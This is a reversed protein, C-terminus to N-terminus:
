HLIAGAGQWEIQIAGRLSMPKQESNTLRFRLTPYCLNFYSWGIGNPGIEVIQEQSWTNGRDGSAAISFRQKPEGQFFASRLNNFKAVTPVPGQPGLEKAYSERTQIEVIINEAGDDLSIVREDRFREENTIYHQTTENIIIEEKVGRGFGGPFFSMPEMNCLSKIETIAQYSDRYWRDNKYDYIWVKNTSPTTSYLWYEQRRQHVVGKIEQLRGDTISTINIGELISERVPNGIDKISAGDWMHVNDGGLFFGFYDSAAWSHPAIMGTGFIRGEVRFPELADGTSILELIEKEKTLYAKGNLIFGGTLPANSSEIVDLFGAGDNSLDWKLIDGNAHWRVRAPHDVEAERTRIAVVRNAFPILVMAKLTNGFDHDLINISDGDWRRIRTNISSWLVNNLTNVISFRESATQQTEVDVFAYLLWQDDGPVYKYLFSDGFMLLQTLENNGVPASFYVQQVNKTNDIAGGVPVTGPRRTIRERHFRANEVLVGKTQEIAIPDRDDMGGFPWTIFDSPM